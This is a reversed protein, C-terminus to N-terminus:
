CRWDFSPETKFVLDKPVGRKKHKAAQAKDFWSEAMYLRRDLLTCGRSSAYALFVGLQCNAIKCLAGRYQRQVGVSHEGKKPFGSGDM